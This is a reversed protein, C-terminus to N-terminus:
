VKIEKRIMQAAVGFSVIFLLIFAVPFIIGWQMVAVNATFAQDVRLYGAVAYPQRGLETIMWGLEVLVVSLPGSSLVLWGVIRSDILINKSRRYLALYLLPILALFGVLVMKVEFLRNVILLPWDARPYERLGRVVTDADNGALISLANPIRIGGELRDEAENLHGGIVYPAHDLTEPQMQIAAFKRPEAQALYQMSAHGLGALLVICMFGLTMFRGVVLRLVAKMKESKHRTLLWVSIGAVSFFTTMYYSILSHAIEFFATPTLLGKWPRVNTMVGNVMEFGQPNNMWANALTIFVASMGAGLIVPILLLLHRYGAYRKWTSVYFGLFVAEILFAYGELAFPVGIIPAGFDVLGSWIVSMQIAILTGSVVGVIVFLSMIRSLFQALSLLESSKRQIGWWEICFIALPLGVGFLAFIIHFALSDGIFARAASLENM